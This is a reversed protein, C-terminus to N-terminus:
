DNSRPRVALPLEGSRVAGPLEGTQIGVDPRGPAPPAELGDVLLFGQIQIAARHAEEVARLYRETTQFLTRQAILVQPYAAAMQQFKDFYLRYAQEARPLIETRYEDAIRLSTLYVEFVGSLQGLLALQTRTLEARARSLQAAASQRGGQNRNFLPISIGAEVFGEWGVPRGTNALTERDYDSGARLFIDPFADRGTSPQRRRRSGPRRRWSRRATACCTRCPTAISSRSM